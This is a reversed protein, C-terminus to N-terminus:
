RSVRCLRRSAYRVKPRVVYRARARDMSLNAPSPPGTFADPVSPPRKTVACRPLTGYGPVALRTDIWPSAAETPSEGSPYRPRRISARNEAVNGFEPSFIVWRITGGRPCGVSPSALPLLRWRIHGVPVTGPPTTFRKTSVTVPEHAACCRGSCTQLRHTPDPCSLWSRHTVNGLSGDDSLGLSMTASKPPNASLSSAPTSPPRSGFFNQPRTGVDICSLLKSELTSPAVRWNKACNSPSSLRRKIEGTSTRPLPRLSTGPPPGRRQGRPPASSYSSSEHVKANLREAVGGFPM